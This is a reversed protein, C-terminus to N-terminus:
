FCKYFAVHYNVQGWKVALPCCFLRSWLVCSACKFIIVNITCWPLLGVHTVHTPSREALAGVEDGVATLVPVVASVPTRAAEVSEQASVLQPVVVAGVSSESMGANQWIALVTVPDDGHLGPGNLAAHSTVKSMFLPSVRTTTPPSRTQGGAADGHCRCLFPTTIRSILRQASLGCRVKAKTGHLRSGTSCRQARGVAGSVMSGVHDCITQLKSSFGNCYKLNEGESKYWQARAVVDNSYDRGTTAADVTEYSRVNQDGMNYAAIAGKLHQNANWSPFKNKIVDIFSLLIKTAQILHEVSDWSGVPTIGSNQPDIQMLGFARGHDGRGNVLQNGARSERSIIGAILAPDVDCKQGAQRIISKYKKMRELDIRAMERSGPGLRDGAATTASAGSTEISM